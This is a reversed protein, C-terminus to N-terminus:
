MAKNVPLGVFDNCFLFVVLLIIYAVNGYLFVFSRLRVRNSTSLQTRPQESLIFIM